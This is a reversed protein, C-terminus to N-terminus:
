SGKIINKSLYDITVKSPTLGERNSCSIWSKVYVPIVSQLIRILHNIPLLENQNSNPQGHAVNNRFKRGNKSFWLSSDDNDGMTQIILHELQVPDGKPRFRGLMSEINSLMLGMRVPYPIFRTDFIKRYIQLVNEIESHYATSDYERLMQWIPTLNKMDKSSLIRDPDKLLMSLITQRYISPYRLKFQGEYIYLGLLRPDYFTTFGLLRLATVALDRKRVMHPLLSTSNVQDPINIGLALGAVPKGEFIIRSIFDRAIDKNEMSAIEHGDLSTIQLSEDGGFAFTDEIGLGV